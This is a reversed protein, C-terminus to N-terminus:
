CLGIPRCMTRFLVHDLVYELASPVLEKDPGVKGVKLAAPRGVLDWELRERSLRVSELRFVADRPVELYVDELARDRTVLPDVWLQRVAPLERNGEIRSFNLSDLKLHAPFPLRVPAPATQSAQRSPDLIGLVLTFRGQAVTDFIPSRSLPRAEVRPTAGSRAFDTREGSKHVLVLDKTELSVRAPVGLQLQIRSRLPPHVELIVRGQRDASLMLATGPVVALLELRLGGVSRMVLSADQGEAELTVEAGARVLQKEAAWVEKVALRRLEPQGRLELSTLPFGRLVIIQDTGVLSFSIREPTAHLTVEVPRRVQHLMVAALVLGGVGVWRLRIRALLLSMGGM